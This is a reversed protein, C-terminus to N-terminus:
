QSGDLRPDITQRARRCGPGPDILTQRHSSLCKDDILRYAFLNAMQGPNADTLVVDGLDDATRRLRQALPATLVEVAADGLGIGQDGAIQEGVGFAAIDPRLDKPQFCPRMPAFPRYGVVQSWAAVRLRARRYDEQQGVVASIGLQRLRQAVYLRFVRWSSRPPLVGHIESAIILAVRAFRCM